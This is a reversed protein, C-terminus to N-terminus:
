MRPYRGEEKLKEYRRANQEEFVSYLDITKMPPINEDDLSPSVSEMKKKYEELMDFPNKWALNTKRQKVGRVVASGSLTTVM